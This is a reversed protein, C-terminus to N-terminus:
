LPEDESKGVVYTVTARPEIGTLETVLTVFSVATQYFKKASQLKVRRTYMKMAYPAHLRGPAKTTDPIITKEIEYPSAHTVLNRWEQMEGIDQFLGQSKDIEYPIAGFLLELKEWFRSTKKYRSFDFAKFREDHPM